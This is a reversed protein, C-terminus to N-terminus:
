CDIMEKESKRKKILWRKSKRIFFIKSLAFVRSLWRVECRAVPLQFSAVLYFEYNKIRLEYNYIKVEGKKRRDEINRRM